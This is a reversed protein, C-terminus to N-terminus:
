PPEIKDEKGIEEGFLGLQNETGQNSLKDFCQDGNETKEEEITLRCDDNRRIWEDVEHKFFYIYKGAPKHFPIKRQSTYKYLQSNSLSLYQATQNLNLLDTLKGRLLNEIETLRLLIEQEHM